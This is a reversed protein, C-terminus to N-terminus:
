AAQEYARVLSEYGPHNLLEAHTGVGAIRGGHFYLVRDALEITSVRQAVVIVTADVSARLNALIQQEVEADVASTADDLVLLRPRRILARALAVRQRQGGSLTVGREGVVTDYGEALDRIFADARAIKAASRVAEDSAAGTLDINSRVSDAFLFSEQFVLAVADTREVADLEGISVGGIRVEGQEPPLLGCLISCLTSKGAGTSGVLAITEGPHVELDVGSLVQVRTDEAAGDFAFVVGSAQVGLAGDSLPHTRNPRPPIESDFVGALREHAVVSPPLSTLFFGFVRMPFSLVSFLSAVQVLEGPTMAGAEIRYTGLLIVTIIGVNPLVDIVTDFAATLFGVQVRDRRLDEVKVGFREGEPEARGLTKVVLAGDFSEHAVTSVAGVDAQVRAAPEEIRRSYLHNLFALAPFLAFAVAALLPDVLLLSIASFVTLFFVGITFPLPMLVQTAMEADNDVHALLEGTPRQQHWALPLRLYKEGLRHRYTRQVQEGALMGFYRRGVTGVIRIFTIAALAVVGWAVTSGTVGPEEFAPLVVDDTIRGLVVASGVTGFAFVLAATGALGVSLPHLRVMRVLLGLGRRFM